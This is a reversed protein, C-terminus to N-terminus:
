RELNFFCFFCFFVRTEPVPVLTKLLLRLCADEVTAIPNTSQSNEEEWVFSNSHNWRKGGV